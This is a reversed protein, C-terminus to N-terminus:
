EGQCWTQFSSSLSDTSMVWFPKILLVISVSQARATECAPCKLWAGGLFNCAVVTLVMMVLYKYLVLLLPIIPPGIWLWWSSLSEEKASFYPTWGASLRTLTLDWFRLWWRRPHVGRSRSTAFETNETAKLVKWLLYTPNDSLMIIKIGRLTNSRSSTSINPKGGAM